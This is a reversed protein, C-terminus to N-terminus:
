IKKLVLIKKQGLIFKPSMKEVGLVINPPFFCLKQVKLKEFRCLAFTKSLSSNSVLSWTKDKKRTTSPAVTAGTYNYVKTPPTSYEASTPPRVLKEVFRHMM